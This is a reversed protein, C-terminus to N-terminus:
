GGQLYGSLRLYQDAFAKVKEGSTQAQAGFGIALALILLLLNKIKM